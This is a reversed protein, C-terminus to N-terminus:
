QKTPLFEAFSNEKPKPNVAIKRRAAPSLGLVEMARMLAPYKGVAFSEPDKRYEVMLNAFVEIVHRDSATTINEPIMDLIEYWMAKVSSKLYDPPAGLGGPRGDPVGRYRQPDHKVAGKLKAIELPQPTTGRM